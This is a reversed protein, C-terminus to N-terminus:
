ASAETAPAPASTDAGGGPHAQVRVQLTAWDALPGCVGHALAEFRGDASLAEFDPYIRALCPETGEGEQQFSGEYTGAADGGAVWALATRLPLPLPANMGERWVQLLQALTAQAEAPPLPAFHLTADRGVLLGRVCAGSAAAALSRVWPVLLAEARVTGKKADRLLRSPTWDLWVPEEGSGQRLHDLWDDLVTNSSFQGGASEPQADTAVVNIAEATCRLPVRECSAPHQAQADCWAQLLPRAQEALGAQAREGLGGLPLRGARRLRQLRGDLLADLGAGPQSQLDALVGDLLERLTGYEDLGALAFAEDDAGEEEGLDFVVGLRERLFAKVPNRLFTALQAVTLPVRPDPTFPPLPPAAEVSALADDPGHAARWERAHTFLAPDGEFYRRSFPQLPHETTRQALVEGSWGAALYDRLQSVLVSPPQASNDRVSRGTWSIYFVRRASLLAELMLQRDDSQRSRDGPRAQGALAMLDFDSRPARRPYDGDNMGLLCVVEFPIARMPMLTCFTVGGARFRQNLSPEELADLWAERAVSLPLEADFGAQACADQWENLAADLALLVQRDPEDTAQAIGALLARARAAWGEPTAATAAERWWHELQGLLGALAGALDAELGGVEAYPEIGAFVADGGAYGLLMRRLGFAGTNQEGCAGLGLDARQAANLGWRIGAGAMWRALQERAEPRVGFRAAIAPVDLLDRLESLRCRQQPLRLLWELAAVLPHSARASLDAIDFPIHRPDSRPFQGFVARIAPAVADIDPVMVVIDRPQLPTGGSPGALLQLLQDHLVEVERLASHATHFVISRDQPDAARLDHEALPVLDRIRNQVQVLLPAEPPEGEDFLDVRPLAFREMAQQADDFADLQRVFDRGQRGWAALLPHAHLHMQELPLAALDHGGRLPQRRRELRLLERGDMIDAWHFRSPNPIALLVQSGGSLAALLELVPQPVHATGFLVIRRAVPSAPAGGAQLADLARQHIAPRIAAREREDLTALVARWLLPQWRQDTPLALGQRGPATLVDHGQAWDGLWDPRYVQYQDFLDALRGALQWLRDPDGPRLFGAVPGFGPAGLLGPLLRVLRWALPTKDVPSQAPVQARGLVQRYTRWLFRSPLEVRTAACIGGQQALAMKFWEAMGNSQVLVVEEELPALPHQHLWAMVADALRETRNGHLAILGNQLPPFIIPAETM